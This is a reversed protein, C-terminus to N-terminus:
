FINPFGCFQISAFGLAWHVKWFYFKQDYWGFIVWSLIDCDIPGTWIQKIEKNQKM